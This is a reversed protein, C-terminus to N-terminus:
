STESVVTAINAITSFDSASDHSACNPLRSPFLTWQGLDFVIQGAEQAFRLLLVDDDSAVAFRGAHQDAKLRLIIPEFIPELVIRTEQSPDLARAFAKLRSTSSTQFIDFRLLTTRGEP